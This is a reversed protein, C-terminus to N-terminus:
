AGRDNPAGGVNDTGDDDGDYWVEVGLNNLTIQSTVLYAAQINANELYVAANSSTGQTLGSQSGDLNSVSSAPDNALRFDQDVSKNAKLTFANNLDNTSEEYITLGSFAGVDASLAPTKLLISDATVTDNSAVVISLNGSLGGDNNTLEGVDIEKVLAFGTITANDLENVAMPYNDTTAVDGSNSTQASGPYLIFNDAEVTEAQVQFGGINAIPAAFAMGTSMFLMGVIAVVGLSAGTSKALTDKDYM